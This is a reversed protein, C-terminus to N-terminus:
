EKRSDAIIDEAKVLYDIVINYMSSLQKHKIALNLQKEPSLEEKDFGFEYYLSNIISRAKEITQELEFLSDADM